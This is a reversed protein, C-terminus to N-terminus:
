AKTQLIFGTVDSMKEALALAEESPIQRILQGSEEDMVSVVSKGSNSDVRFVLNKKMMSMMDSLQSTLKELSEQSLEQEKVVSKAAMDVSGQTVISSQDGSGKVRQHLQVSTSTALNTDISM